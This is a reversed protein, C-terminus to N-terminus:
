QYKRQKDCRSLVYFLLKPQRFKNLPSTLQHRHKADSFFNQFFLKQRLVFPIYLLIQFSFPQLIPSPPPVPPPPPPLPPPPPPAKRRKM